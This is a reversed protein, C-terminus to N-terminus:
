EHLTEVKYDKHIVGKLKKESGVVAPQVWIVKNECQRLHGRRLHVRPSSRIFNDNEEDDDPLSINEQKPKKPVIHLTYYEYIPFSGCQKRRQNIKPEVTNKVKSVNSCNLIALFSALGSYILAMDEMMHRKEKVEPGIFRDCTFRDELFSVILFIPCFFFKNDDKSYFALRGEIYNDSNRKAHLFLFDQCYFLCNDYPLNFIEKQVKLLPLIKDVTEFKPMEEYDGFDFKVASQLEKGWAREIQTPGASIQDIFEHVIM